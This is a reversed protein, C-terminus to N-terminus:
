DYDSSEDDVGNGDEGDGVRNEDEEVAYEYIDDEEGKEGDHQNDPNWSSLENSSAWRAESLQTLDLFSKWNECDDDANLWWWCEIMMLMLGEDANDAIDTGDEEDGAGMEDTFDNKGHILIYWYIDTDEKAWEKSIYIMM